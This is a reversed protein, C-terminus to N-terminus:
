RVNERRRQIAALWRNYAELTKEAATPAAAPPAVHAAVPTPAAALPAPESSAPLPEEGAEIRQKLALLKDYLARNGPELQYLERYVKFAKRLLGQREYIGALTATAIPPEADATAVEEPLPQAPPEAAVKQVAAPPPVQVAPLTSLMQAAQADDPALALVQTLLGRAAETERLAIRARALGKLGQLNAPEIALTQEFAAAAGQWDGREALARALAVFGPAYTPLVKAGRSAVEVADDFMRLKRYTESLPVFVTSRPDKALIETYGAIKGILSAEASGDVM